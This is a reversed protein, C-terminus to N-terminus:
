KNSFTQHSRHDKPVIQNASVHTALANQCGTSLQSQHEMLCVFVGNRDPIAMLCYKFADGLCAQREEQSEALATVATLVDVACLVAVIAISIELKSTMASETPQAAAVLLAM